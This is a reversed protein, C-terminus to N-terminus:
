TGTFQGGYQRGLKTIKRELKSGNGGNYCNYPREIAVWDHMPKGEDDRQNYYVKGDLGYRHKVVAVFQRAHDINPFSDFFLSM